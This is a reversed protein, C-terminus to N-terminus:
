FFDMNTIAMVDIESLTANFNNWRYESKLKLHCSKNVLAFVLTTARWHVSITVTQALIIGKYYFFGQFVIVM